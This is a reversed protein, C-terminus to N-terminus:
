HIHQLPVYARILVRVFVPAPFCAVLGLFASVEFAPDICCFAQTRVVEEDRFSANPRLLVLVLCCGTSQPGFSHNPDM